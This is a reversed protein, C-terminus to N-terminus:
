IGSPRELVAIAIGVVIFAGGAIAGRPPWEHLIPIALLASLPPEGLLAVSVTVARVHALTWNLVTHGGVTCVAALAACALLTRGSPVVPSGTVGVAVLGGVASVAYCPVSYGAAGYRARVGRGILLYGTISASGALALLDGALARGSLGLDGGATIATGGIALAIGAWLRPSVAEGLLRRGLFAVWVPSTCVLLVSSAVTTYALSATWTLFHVALFAGSAGVVALEGPRRPARGHRLDRVFMPALLLCALALRGWVVTAYGDDAERIFISSFSVAVVAGALAAPALGAPDRSPRGPAGGDSGAPPATARSM